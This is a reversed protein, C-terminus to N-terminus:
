PLLGSTSNVNQLSLSLFEERAVLSYTQKM